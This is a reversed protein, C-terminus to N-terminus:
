PVRMFALSGGPVAYIQYRQALEQLWRSVGNLGVRGFDHWAIVSGSHCCRLANQTDSRIYEYSHAGDIFFLDVRGHYPSYDFTASDGYLCHVKHAVNTNTFLYNDVEAYMGQQLEDMATTPLAPPATYGRPLDLTYVQCTDPSNLAFHLSTYGRATGIEFVLQPQLLQCLVCLNVIDQSYSPVTGFWTANSKLTGLVLSISEPAPLVEFVNCPTLGRRKAITKYLFLTEANYAMLQRPNTVWRLSVLNGGQIFNRAAVIGLGIWQGIKM